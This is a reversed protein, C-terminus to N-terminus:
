QQSLRLRRADGALSRDVAVILWYHTLDVSSRAALRAHGHKAGQRVGHHQIVVSATVAAVLRQGHGTPAGVTRAVIKPLIAIHFVHATATRPGRRVLGDAGRGCLALYPQCRVADRHMAHVPVDFRARLDGHDGGVTGLHTANGQDIKATLWAVDLQGAVTFDDHRRGVGVPRMRGEGLQEYFGFPVCPTRRDGGRPSGARRVVRLQPAHVDDIRARITDAIYAALCVSRREQTAPAPNAGGSRQLVVSRQLAVSAGYEVRDKRQACTYAHCGAAGHAYREGRQDGGAPLGGELESAAVM